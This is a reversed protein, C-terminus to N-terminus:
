EQGHRGNELIRRIRFLAWSMGLLGYVGVVALQALSSRVLIDVAWWLPIGGLLILVLGLKVGNFPSGAVRFGPRPSAISGPRKLESM